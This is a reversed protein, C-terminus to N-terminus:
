KVGYKRILRQLYAREIGAERAAKSINGDHRDLIDRIYNREFDTILEGKAVKFPRDASYEGGTNEERVRGRAPYLFTGLDVPRRGGHFAIEVLNRLERVNGPWDYNYFGEMAKDFNVVQKMADEGHFEKLFKTTLLPIDEKRRHLPALEIHVVSLRFYLDERFRGANVERLLKRNTACIIRVDINRVQNSGVRRIEKKEMVRLLKPQLDASLDGIEDLLVTGGNAHEFAGIRDSGAGTFAGKVHGFLESEILERALAGCDIVIFPKRKRKSHRHIEEALVEKGTGTEGEILITTDTPAYMEALHFVRRMAVSKGIVSGFVEKSSLKYEMAEQLPCFVIKTKGLQLETGQNLFAESIRVGQVLTGNTSGLDRVLYGDPALQIECHRRSITSDELMLDSGAGTGITFVDKDVVFEKGQLPGSVALLKAKQVLIRNKDTDASLILTPSELKRVTGEKDLVM